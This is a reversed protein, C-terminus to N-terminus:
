NWWPVRQCDRASFEKLPTNYSCVTNETSPSLSVTTSPYWLRTLRRGKSADRFFLEMLKVEIRLVSAPHYSHRMKKGLRVGLVRGFPVHNWKDISPLNAKHWQQHTKILSLDVIRNYVNKNLWFALSITTIVKFM